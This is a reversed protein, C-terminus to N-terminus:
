RGSKMAFWGVGYITGKIYEELCKFGFLCLCGFGLWTPFIQGKFVRFSLSSQDTLQRWVQKALMAEKFKKLDKFGLGRFSKSQCLVQWSKWHIKRQAGQQRWWFKKILMEIEHCLSIPLRLCSMAFTPIAQVVAKLLVERGAQSILPEKWRQLKNWVQEKIYNLSARKNRGM